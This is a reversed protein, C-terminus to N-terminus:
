LYKINFKKVILKMILWGSLVGSCDAIFDFWSASRGFYMQQLIEILGGLLSPYVLCILVFVPNTTNKSKNARTYDFLLVASLGFYMLFHILKDENEFTPISQFTSAPAFSLYLICATIGISKWYSLIKVLLAM